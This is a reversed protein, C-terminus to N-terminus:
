NEDLAMSEIRESDEFCVNPTEGNRSRNVANSVNRMVNEMGRSSFRYTCSANASIGMSTGVEIADQNAGLFIFEWNYTEEQNKILTRVHDRTTKQSCNEHGDTLIIIIVKKPQPSMTSVRKGVDRIFYRIGDYLATMGDPFIDEETINVVKADIGDAFLTYKDSFKAGYFTVKGTQSQERITNNLSSTTEQTGMDAMSSSADALVGIVTTEMAPNGGLTNLVHIMWEPVGDLERFFKVFYGVRDQDIKPLINDMSGSNAEVLDCILNLTQMWMTKDAYGLLDHATAKTVRTKVGKIKPESVGFKETPFVWWSWHSMKRGHQNLEEIIQPCMESQLTLLAKMHRDTIESFMDTAIRIIKYKFM